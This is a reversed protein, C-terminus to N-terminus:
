TLELRKDVPEADFQRKLESGDPGTKKETSRAAGEKKNGLGFFLERTSAGPQKVFAALVCM